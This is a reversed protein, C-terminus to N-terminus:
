NKIWKNDTKGTVSSPRIESEGSLEAARNVYHNQCGMNTSIGNNAQPIVNGQKQILGNYRNINENAFYQQHYGLEQHLSM